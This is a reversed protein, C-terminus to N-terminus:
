RWHAREIDRDKKAKKKYDRYHEQCLHVRVKVAHGKKKAPVTVELYPSVRSAPLSRISGKECGTVDCKQEPTMTIGRRYGVLYKAIGTPRRGM